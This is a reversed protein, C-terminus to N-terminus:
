PCICGTVSKAVSTSMNMPPPGAPVAEPTFIVVALTRSNMTSASIRPSPATWANPRRSERVVCRSAIVTIMSEAVAIATAVIASMPRDENVVSWIRNSHTDANPVTPRDVPMVAWSGGAACPM